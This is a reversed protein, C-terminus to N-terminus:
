EKKARLWAISFFLILLIFTVLFDLQPVYVQMKTPILAVELAAIKYDAWKLYEPDTILDMFARRGPYYIYGIRNYGDLEKSYVILNTKTKDSEDLLVPKSLILPYAGLKLLIPMSIEEYLLNSEEPSMNKPGNPLDKLQDYFRMLNVMYVPEGDDNYGWTRLRKFLEESEPMEKPFHQQLTEIYADVESPTLRESSQWYGFALYIVLLISFLKIEFLYKM